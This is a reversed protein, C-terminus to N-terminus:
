LRLVISTRRTHSPWDASQLSDLVVVTSLLSSPTAPAAIAVSEDPASEARVVLGVGYGTANGCLDYTAFPATFPLIALLILYISLLRAPVPV